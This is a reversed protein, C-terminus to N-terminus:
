MSTTSTTVRSTRTVTPKRFDRWPAGTTAWGHQIPWDPAEGGLHWKGILASDRDPLVDPLSIQALDLRPADPSGVGHQYPHLGTFISARTPSCAPTSWAQTFMVGASALADITPTAPKIHDGIGYVELQDVGVDDAIILLVNKALAHEVMGVALLALVVLKMGARM